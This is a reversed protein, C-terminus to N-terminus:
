SAGVLSIAGVSISTLISLQTSLLTWHLSIASCLIDQLEIREVPPANKEVRM